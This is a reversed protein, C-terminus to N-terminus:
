KVQVRKTTKALRFSREGLQYTHQEEATLWLVTAPRPCGPAGCVIRKGDFIVRHSYVYIQHRAEGPECAECRAVAIARPQPAPGPACAPSTSDM